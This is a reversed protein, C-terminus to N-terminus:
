ISKKIDDGLWDLIINDLQLSIDSFSQNLDLTKVSIKNGGMQYDNNPTVIKDTKAYLLLGSVEGSQKKDKNKVYAYIQYLNNSHHTRKDYLKNEQLTRSYYKADIILIKDGYTLMIDSKMIPLLGIMGDDIDWNIYSAIPSLQPFHKRYYELIFKEYLRHMRQEDVPKKLTKGNENEALILDQVALYCINILMRYTANNKQYKISNWRITSLGITDVNQFFVLTKRLSKKRVPKVESSNILKNATSKLIQNLYTNESLDDFECYVQKNKLANLKITEAIKIKGKISNMQSNESIYEKSIGRKVQNSMGKALIASLLDQVNNFDEFSLKAYGKNNLVQFAYALMYYVNQIRIM